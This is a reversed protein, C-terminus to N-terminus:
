KLTSLKMHNLSINHFIPISSLIDFNSHRLDKFLILRASLFLPLFVIRIPPPFESFGCILLLVQALDHLMLVIEVSLFPPFPM